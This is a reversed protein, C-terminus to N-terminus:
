LKFGIGVNIDSIVFFDMFLISNTGFNNGLGVDFFISLKSTKKSYGFYIMADFGIDNTNETVNRINFVGIQWQSYYGAGKKNFYNRLGIDSGLRTYHDPHSGFMQFEPVNIWASPKIVLSQSLNLPNEITLYLYVGTGMSSIFIGSVPHIYIITEMNKHVIKNTEKITEEQSFCFNNVSIFIAIIWITKEM